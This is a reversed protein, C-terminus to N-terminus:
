RVIGGINELDDFFDPWSKGVAGSDEIFMEGEACLGAVALAMAIRHDHHSSVKTGNIKGGEILMKDGELTIIAGIKEFETKLTLARNSEKHTLRNVGHIITTGKCYIALAVLPPFLDPTDTADYEFAILQNKTIILGNDISEVKAGANEVVEVIAKDGQASNLDIGTIKIKGAIAGAVVLFAAGSWDGETTINIPKYKQNAPIKFLEYNDHNIEIGFKRLIEITLDIYPKSKLNSVSLESDKDTLPLAMLLGTLLQSSFEGDVDVKTNKYPGKITLPLKGNNSNIEVGFDKLTDVIFDVPRNLLSGKGTIEFVNKNLALIPSFMRLGLGSEGIIVNRVYNKFGGTIKIVDDGKEVTAGLSSILNLGASADESLTKYGIVSKGEALFAGAILRQLASKSSPAAIEGSIKSKQIKQIM